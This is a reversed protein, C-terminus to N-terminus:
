NPVCSVQCISGRFSAKLMVNQAICYLMCCHSIVDAPPSFWQPSFICGLTSISVGCYFSSQELQRSVRVMHVLKVGYKNINPGEGSAM